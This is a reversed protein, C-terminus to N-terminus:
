EGEKQPPRVPFGILLNGPGFLRDLDEQSGLRGKFRRPEPAVEEYGRDLFERLLARRAPESLDSGDDDEREDLWADLEDLRPLRQLIDLCRRLHNPEVIRGYHEEALAGWGEGADLQRAFADEIV